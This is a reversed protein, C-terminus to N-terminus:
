HCSAGGSGGGGCGCGGGQRPTTAVAQQAQQQVEASLVVKGTNDVSVDDRVIFTGRIMGMWCSWQITGSQDPTFEITQLGPKINFQLKYAPVNIANNCGNLEKGNIIWKVPVGKKLVFSNPSWGANTVDMRIEQYQASPDGGLIPTGIPNGNGNQSGSNLTGGVNDLVLGNGTLALGNNIMLIGMVLVIVASVRVIQNQFGHSLFSAFVGFGLMPILTGIGFALLMLGGTVFSGTTAALVYMAQLPGCAIFLGNMLGVTLPNSGGTKFPGIRLKSFWSQPLSFKRLIPFINLLRVAFIILFIGALIAVTARLEPTFVFISGILGFIAGIVSYSVLKGVAYQSHLGLNLGKPNEQRAKATYSLVFGGCMGICHFGTLLGVIFILFISTNADLQPISLNMPGIVSSVALYGVVLFAIATLGLLLYGFKKDYDPEKESAVADTNEEKATYGVEKVMSIIQDSSVKDSDITMKATGDAYSVRVHKIGNVQSLKKEIIKECSECVMDDIKLSVKQNEM